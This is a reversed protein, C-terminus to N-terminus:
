VQMGSSRFKSYLQGVFVKIDRNLCTRFLIISYISSKLSNCHQIATVAKEMKEKNFLLINSSCAGSGESLGKISKPILRNKFLKFLYKVSSSGGKM